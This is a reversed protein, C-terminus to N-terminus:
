FIYIFSSTYYLLSAIFLVLNSKPYSLSFYRKDFIYNRMKKQKIRAVMERLCPRCESIFVKNIIYIYFIYIRRKRSYCFVKNWRLFFTIKNVKKGLKGTDETLISLAQLMPMYFSACIHKIISWRYQATVFRTRQQRGDCYDIRIFKQM